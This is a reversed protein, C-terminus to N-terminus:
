HGDPRQKLTMQVVREAGDRVITLKASDGVATETELYVTLDQFDGVSEDDIGIIVDGGVPIQYNGVRATRDSGQIGADDAPSGAATEIVMLGTDVPLAMGAERLTQAITPTLPLLQVGLWPHPYEGDAILASVVRRVTNSSVAFGIGSSAGSPSIIQSNVGVVRGQLDILPGGSNGPNIAADTQIAEGIFSGDSSEIVRGLASVVGTTLTQELGFPNGIAIVFQGVKLQDSDGLAVPEPLDAGADIHIVALDNEPDTGVIEAEYVLGEALTVLLEEANEIVHYNTVINGQTDYVFGSGTGEQPIMQMSRGYAYSRNTINVVAPGSAEYVAIIQSELTGVAEIPDSNGDPVPTAVPSATTATPSVTTPDAAPSLASAGTLGCGIGVSLLLFCVILLSWSSRNKKNM